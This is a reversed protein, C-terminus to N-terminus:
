QAHETGTNSMGPMSHHMEVLQWATGSGIRSMGLGLPTTSVTMPGMPMEVEPAGSAAPSPHHVHGEQARAIPVGTVLFALCGVANWGPWRDHGLQEASRPRARGRPGGTGVNM